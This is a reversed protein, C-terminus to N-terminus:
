PRGSVPHSRPISRTSTSRSTSSARARLGPRDGRAGGARDRDPRDRDDHDRPDRQERILAREAPDLSRVGLLVVRAPDVAPCRWGRTPSRTARSRRARGRAADRPRERDPQDGPTNLDGHADIWIVGGPQGAAARLGALTGLAVSHDGGLVLPLSGDAVVDGVLAALRACAELIEPLFRAREDTRALAEPQPSSSTGAISSGAASRRSGSTSGPTASRPRAWTSAADRRVSTSRRASSRDSDRPTAAVARSAVRETPRSPADRRRSRTADPM